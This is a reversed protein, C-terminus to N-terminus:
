LLVDGSADEFHDEASEDKLTEREDSEPVLTAHGEPREVSANFKEWSSKRVPRERTKM